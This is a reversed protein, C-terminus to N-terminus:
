NMRRCFFQTQKPLIGGHAITVCALLEELEEDNRVTLLVHRPIFTRTKTEKGKKLHGSIRAFLFRLTARTSLSVHNKESRWREEQCSEKGNNKYIYGPKWRPPWSVGFSYYCDVKTRRNISM